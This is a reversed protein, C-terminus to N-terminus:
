EPAPSTRRRVAGVLRHRDEAEVVRAEEPPRLEDLPVDGVDVGLVAEDDDLVLLEGLELVGLDPCSNSSLSLRPTMTPMALTGALPSKPM